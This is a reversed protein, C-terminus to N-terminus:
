HDTEQEIHLKIDWVVLTDEQRFWYYAALLYVKGEDEFGDYFVNGARGMDPREARHSRGLPDEGLKAELSDLLKDFAGFPLDQPLADLAQDMVVIVFSM